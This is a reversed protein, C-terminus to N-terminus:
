KMGGTAYFMIKEQTIEDKETDLIKAIHGEHMVAIRSSMNIIEPLESSIMIIAIGENALEQMLHYIESKAGVDIGRTPEDLILIKPKAALWKSIVIKQQNGGSLEVALQNKGAVKIHLKDIYENIISNEKQKDVRISRIFEKLVQITMNFGISNRLFLGQCKRDEPVYAIGNNIANEPTKNVIKKGELYMEGSYIPDIGFIARAMETRGAGVLGSFGLIEGKKLTFNIDKVFKDSLNKVEFIVEKGVPKEAIYLEKIERGVMMKILDDSKTDKVLVTDIFEGDRLVTISDCIEFTEELRHSIYIISINRAKLDKIQAFLSRVESNTLSATPEDMIIIKADESISRAIEVMQQQAISLRGVIMGPKLDLKLIELVRKAEANMKGFDVLGAATKPERGLFMNEAITMYPEVSIEQHIFSVGHKRADDVNNIEVKEGNMYITGTDASYIGGLIKMLTSKGAGNEGILARVEGEKVSISVDRLVQNGLFAKSVNKMEFLYENAM